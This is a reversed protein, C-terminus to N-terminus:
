SKKREGCSCVGNKFRHRSATKETAPRDPCPGYLVPRHYLKGQKKLKEWVKGQARAITKLKTKGVKRVMDAYAKKGVSRLAMKEADTLEVNMIIVRRRASRMEYFRERKQFEGLNVNILNM